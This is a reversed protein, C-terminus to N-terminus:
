VHKAEFEKYKLEVRCADIVNKNRNNLQKLVANTMELKEKEIKDNEWDELLKSFYSEIPMGSVSLDIVKNKLEEM